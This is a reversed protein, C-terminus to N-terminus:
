LLFPKLLNCNICNPKANNAYHPNTRPLFFRRVWEWSIMRKVPVLHTLLILELARFKVTKADDEGIM